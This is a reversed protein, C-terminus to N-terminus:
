KLTFQSIPRNFELQLRRIDFSMILITIGCWFFQFGSLVNSLVPNQIKGSIIFIILGITYALLVLSVWWFKMESRLDWCISAYLLANILMYGTLFGIDLNKTESSTNFIIVSALVLIIGYILETMSKDFPDSIFYALIFIIGNSIAILALPTRFSIIPTDLQFFLFVGFLVLSIGQLLM